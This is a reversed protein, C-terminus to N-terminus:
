GGSKPSDIETRWYSPLDPKTDRLIEVIAQRDQISLRTYKPSSDKGMLVEFLKRYIRQKAVDPLADFLQDYIMYSLPYRFLRTQLDFDRLSRGQKDRPGREPFTKTFTSVGAMPERIHAEDAFLMYSVLEGTVFDLRGQFDELKKEQLAIRTEWGLRILLNTVRTQHELTMLAVLDSTPALYQATDLRGALSTLNQAGRTDLWDPQDPNPAISNGRHQM